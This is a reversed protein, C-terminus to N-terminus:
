PKRHNCDHNSSRKRLLFLRVSIIGGELTVNTGLLRYNSSGDIDWKLSTINYTGGNTAMLREYEIRNARVKGLDEYALFENIFTKMGVLRGVIRCDDPAVGM